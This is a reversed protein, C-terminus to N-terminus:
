RYIEELEEPKIRLFEVIMYATTFLALIVTVTVTFGDWIVGDGCTPVLAGCFDFAAHLVSILWINKTKMLIVACMSGILFSYGVQLIVSMPSAGDFLNILHVAGFVASTLVIAWFQGSKGMRKKELFGLFVVGRFCFEECLGIFLCEAALLVIKWVPSSVWAGGSLLPYIPLNNVVVLIAPLSFLLSYGFPKRLPNLVKYGLYIVLTIFVVSGMARTVTMNVLAVVVEDEIKIIAGGFLEWVLLLLIFVATILICISRKNM